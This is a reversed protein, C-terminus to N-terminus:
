YLNKYEINSKKEPDYPSKNGKEDVVVFRNKPMHFTAKKNGATSEAIIQDYAYIDYKFHAKQDEVFVTFYLIHIPVKRPLHVTKPKLSKLIKQTKADDYDSGMLYKYLTFPSKVRMCGSSYIRYQRDLLYKNDTDHLYVAYQNPFMFKIRGLANTKGAYQVFSYPVRKKSKEYTFLKQMDLKQAGFAGNVYINNEELYNPNQKLMHILDKKILSDPITWTPNLVVYKIYDDFMPTPRSIKGVVINTRFLQMSDKYYRLRYDPINIEVYESEFSSPYLKTKDLNVIISQVKKASKKQSKYQRLLHILSIYRDRLPLLSDLYETIDYQSLGDYISAASPMSKINFDWNAKINNSKRLKKLKRKVLDWDVDGIHVFRVLSLLSNTIKIDLIAYLRLKIGLSMQENDLRFLIKKIQDIDFPKNKYNYKSNQLVDLAHSIRRDSGLWLSKYEVHAYLENLIKYNEGKAHTSISEEIYQGMDNV